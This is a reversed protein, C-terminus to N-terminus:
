CYEQNKKDIEEQALMEPTIERNILPSINNTFGWRTGDSSLKIVNLNNADPVTTFIAFENNTVTRSGGNISTTNEGCTYTRQVRDNPVVGSMPHVSCFFANAANTETPKCLTKVENLLKDFIDCRPHRYSTYWTNGSVFVAKPVHANLTIRKNALNQAGHHSIKYITVRMENGYYDVLSKQPGNEALNSTADEFDGNFLISVTGHTIKFVISDINKNSNVCQELNVAFVKAVVSNDGPCLALNGCSVGNPGCARGGNFTRVKNAAGINNIWTQLATTMDAFTCSVYVNVLGGMGQGATLVNALMSTHDAHNHTILVNKIRQFSGALFGTIENAAWFRASAADSTGMDIISLDGNPCQIVHADGQGVPLAYVHLKGDPTPIQPVPSVDGPVYHVSKSELPVGSIGSITLLAIWLSVVVQLKSTM